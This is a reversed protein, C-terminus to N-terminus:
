WEGRKFVEMTRRYGRSVVESMKNPNLSFSNHFFAKYDDHEPYIDILTVNPKYNLKRELVSLLQRSQESTFRERKMFESVTSLIDASQLRQKRSSVIKKQIMLYIAQTCIAPLGYNILSGIEDHYHYPTHTWSSIVIDSRNDIAVHTSLTDRIEGDIYYDTQNTQPNRVPYPSYFPPVSMSAAISESVPIGTYYSTTPDDIPQPYNYKSFVVKRSHDLQTAVVFLDAVYDEFSESIAVNDRIYRSLGETTFLGSIGNIPTLFRRLISPFGEFPDHTSPRPPRKHPMKFHLMDKYTIPPLKSKKPNLNANIIDIPRIGSAYYLGILAGASSGV